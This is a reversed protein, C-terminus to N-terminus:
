RVFRSKWGGKRKNKRGDNVGKKRIKVRGEKRGREKRVGHVYLGRGVVAITCFAQLIM